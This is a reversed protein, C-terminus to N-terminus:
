QFLERIAFVGGHDSRERAANSTCCSSRQNDSGRLMDGVEGVDPLSSPFM